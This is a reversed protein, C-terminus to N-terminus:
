KTLVDPEFFLRVPTEASGTNCYYRAVYAKRNSVGSIRRTKLEVSWSLAYGLSNAEDNWVSRLSGDYGLHWAWSVTRSTNQSSVLPPNVSPITTYTFAVWQSSNKGFDPDASSASLGLWYYGSADTNLCQILVADEAPAIRIKLADDYDDCTVMNGNPGLKRAVYQGAGLNPSVVKIRGTLATRAWSETSNFM